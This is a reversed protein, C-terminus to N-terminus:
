SASINTGIWLPSLNRPWKKATEENPSRHILSELLIYPRVFVLADSEQYVQLYPIILPHDLLLYQRILRQPPPKLLPVHQLYVKEGEENSAVGWKGFPTSLIREILYGRYTEGQQFM